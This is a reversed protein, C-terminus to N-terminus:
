EDFIPQPDVVTGKADFIVQIAASQGFWLLEYRVVTQGSAAGQYPVNSRKGFERLHRDVEARAMGPRLGSYMAAMYINLLLPLACILLLCLM